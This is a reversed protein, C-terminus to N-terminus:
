IKSTTDTVSYFSASWLIRRALFYWSKVLSSVGYFIWLSLSFRLCRNWVLFLWSALFKWSSKIFWFSSASARLLSLYVLFGRLKKSGFCFSTFSNWARFSCIAVDFFTGPVRLSLWSSSRSTSRFRLSAPSSSEWSSVISSFLDSCESSEWALSM